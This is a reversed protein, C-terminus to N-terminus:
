PHIGQASASLQRPPEDSSTPMFLDLGRRLLPGISVSFGHPASNAEREPALDGVRLVIPPSAPREYGLVQAVSHVAAPARLAECALHASELEDRVRRIEDDIQELDYAITRPAHALWSQALGMPLVLALIAFPTWFSPKRTRQISEARDAVRRSQPVSPGISESQRPRGKTRDNDAM